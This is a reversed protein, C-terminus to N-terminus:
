ENWDDDWVNYGGNDKVRAAQNSGGGYNMEANSSFNVVHSGGDLIHGHAAVSVNCLTPQQYIKKM